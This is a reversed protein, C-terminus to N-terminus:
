DPYPWYRAPHLVAAGAGLLAADGGLVGPVVRPLAAYDLAAHRRYGDAIPDFLVAGASALVGGVVVVDLDLLTVASAVATGVAEGARRFAAVALPDGAWAAEAIRDPTWSSSDIRGAQGVFWATIAAGGAIAELCGAAGCSCRPGAPDVCVHGIRGANGTTGAVLSGGLVLGGSMGDSAVIGAVNRRGRAAGRWHEAATMAVGDAVIRVATRYRDALMDRLPYRRWPPIQDPSVLGSTRDHDGAVTVGVGALGRVDDPDFGGAHLVDDIASCLADFVEDAGAGVVPLRQSCPIEGADTVLGVATGVGSLDIALAQGSGVSEGTARSAGPRPATAEGPETPEDGSETM